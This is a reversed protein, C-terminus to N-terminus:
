SHPFLHTKLHRKFTQLTVCSRIDAPLSNWTQPAGIHIWLHRCSDQRCTSSRANPASNSASGTRSATHGATLPSYYRDTRDNPTSARWDLSSESERLDRMRGAENETTYDQRIKIGSNLKETLLPQRLFFQLWQNFEGIDQINNPGKHKTPHCYPHIDWLFGRCKWGAYASLSIRLCGNLSIKVLVAQGLQCQFHLGDEIKTFYPIIPHCHWWSSWLCIVQM